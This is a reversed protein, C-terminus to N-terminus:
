ISYIWSSSFMDLFRSGLGDDEHSGLMKELRWMWTLDEPDKLFEQVGNILSM